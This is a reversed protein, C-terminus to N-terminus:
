GRFDGSRYLAYKIIRVSRGTTREKCCDPKGPFMIKRSKLCYSECLNGKNVPKYRLWLEYGNEAYLGQACCLLLLLCINKLNM